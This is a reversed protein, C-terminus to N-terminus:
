RGAHRRARRRRTVRVGVRCGGRVKGYIEQFFKNLAADGEPKDEEYSNSIADWNKLGKSSPYLDRIVTASKEEAEEEEMPPAAVAELTSWRGAAKKKLKIEVKTSM